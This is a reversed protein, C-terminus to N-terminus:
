ILGHFIQSFALDLTPYRFLYGTELARKPVVKQGRLLITEAMEGLGMKLAFGPLPLIAPRHMTRGLLRIFDKHRLPQPATANVPGDIRANIIHAILGCADYIHIWSMWQRGHGMPGGIGFESPFLMQALAGGELAMVLGLRLYSVKVGYSAVQGACNEWQRCLDSALDPKGGSSSEDFELIESHGYYGVASANILHRPKEKAVAIWDALAQTLKLRSDYMAQKKARTWFGDSLSEGALNVIIDVTRLDELRDILTVRGSFQAAKAKDRTLITIDHGDNILAQGLRRGILGTGGTILIRQRPVELHLVPPSEVVKFRKSRSYDFLAWALVGLAFISMVWSWIDHFVVHFGTPLASWRMMEPALLALIIGYNIALITHTIRESAPLKRTRDEIVFDWLTLGIEGLLMAAFLCSLWGGWSLWGLSFFIVAYFFNRVGHIWLEQAAQPKWPLRETFEHHYLTDFAGLCGQITMIILLTNM